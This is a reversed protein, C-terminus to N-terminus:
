RAPGIPLCGDAGCSYYNGYADQRYVRNTRYDYGTDGQAMYSRETQVGAAADAYRQRGQLSLGADYQNQAAHANREAIANGYNQVSQQYGRAAAAEAAQNRAENQQYRRQGEATYGGTAAYGYAFQDLSGRYGQRQAQRFMAVIRPDSMNRSVIQNQMAAMQQQMMANQQAFYANMDQARATGTAAVAAVIAIVIRNM